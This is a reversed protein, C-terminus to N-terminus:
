QLPVGGPGIKLARRALAGVVPYEAWEGRGAKTAYVVATVVMLVWLGMFGLWLLPFLVFAALPPASNSGHVLFIAVMFGALWIMFLCACMVGLILHLFLVQLAHFSVFRSQRRLLFIVLPAIWGGVVQLVHALLAMSREDQTTAAPTTATVTTSPQATAAPDAALTPTPEEAM